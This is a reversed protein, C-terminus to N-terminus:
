SGLRRLRTEDADSKCKAPSEWRERIRRRVRSAGSMMWAVRPPVSGSLRDSSSSQWAGTLQSPYLRM